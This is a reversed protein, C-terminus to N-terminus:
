NIFNYITENFLHDTENKKSDTEKLEATTKLYYDYLLMDQNLNNVPDDWTLDLHLWKNDINVLNWIHTTNSVRVNTIMLKDLFISMADTYGNCTALGEFLSGIATSSTTFENSNELSLNYKTNNIIYDHVARINYSYGKSEDVVTSYIENVKNNIREIDETSYVKEIDINVKGNNTYTTKISRFTNFVNVFNNLQSLTAVDDNISFVDEMCTSYEHPCYFTFSDMGSLIVTYYINLIDQKNNPEFDDTNSVFDISIEKQYENNELTSPNKSYYEIVRDIVENEKLYGYSFVLLAFVALLGVIFKLVKM